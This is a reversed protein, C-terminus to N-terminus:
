GGLQINKANVSFSVSFIQSAPFGGSFRKNYSGYPGYNKLSCSMVTMDTLNPTRWWNRHLSYYYCYYYYSLTYSAMMFDSCPHQVAHSVLKHQTIHSSLYILRSYIRSLLWLLLLEFTQYWATWTRQCSVDNKVGIMAHQRLFSSLSCRIETDWKQRVINLKDQLQPRQM